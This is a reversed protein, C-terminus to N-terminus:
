CGRTYYWINPRGKADLYRIWGSRKKQPASDPECNLSPTAIEVRMWPGRVELSKMDYADSNSPPRALPKTSDPSAFLAAVDPRSFFIPRDVLQETWRVLGVGRQRTDIWGTRASSDAAFGAIGRVWQGSADTSDFPIGSEEYGYEALNPRLSDPAALEYSTVGVENVRFLLAAVPPAAASPTARLLLTDAGAAAGKDEARRLFAVGIGLDAPDVGAYPQWTVVRWSAIPARAPPEPAASDVTSAGRPERACAIMM